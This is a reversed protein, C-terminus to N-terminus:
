FGLHVNSVVKELLAGRLFDFLAESDSLAADAADVFALRHGARKAIPSLDLFDGIHRRARPQHYPGHTEIM